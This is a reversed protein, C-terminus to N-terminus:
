LQSIIITAISETGRGLHLKRTQHIINLSMTRNLLLGQIKRALKAESMENFVGINIAVGAKAFASAAEAHDETLCLHVAPVGMAALEYATVGFSVLALDSQSMLEAMNTVDEQLDFHHKCGSLLNDLEAKHQFGAGLVVVVKFDEKLMELAKMVKITMGQPDSGGM